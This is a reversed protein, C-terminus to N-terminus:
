QELEFRKSCYPCIVLNTSMNIELYVAPHDYPAQRGSCAVSKSNTKEVEFKTM